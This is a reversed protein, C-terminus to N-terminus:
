KINEIFDITINKVADITSVGQINEGKKNIYIPHMGYKKAGKIDKIPNDGIMVCEEPKYKGCALQYAKPNDKIVDQGYIEKFYLDVGMNKLRMMQAKSFYNSLIVLDYRKSLKKLTNRIKKNNSPIMHSIEEFMVNIFEKKLKVQMCKSLYILYDKENYNSYHDEYTQTAYVYSDYYKEPELDNRELIRKVTSPYDGDDILTGDVDFVLQKIM